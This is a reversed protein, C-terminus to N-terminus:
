RISAIFMDAPYLTVPACSNTELVLGIYILTRTLWKSGFFFDSDTESDDKHLFVFIHAFDLFTRWGVKM